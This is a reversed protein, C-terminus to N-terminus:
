GEKLEMMVRDVDAFFDDVLEKVDKFEYPVGKDSAHRSSGFATARTSSRATSIL